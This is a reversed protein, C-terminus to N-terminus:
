PFASFVITSLTKCINRGTVIHVVIVHNKEVGGIDYTQKAISYKFLTHTHSLFNLPTFAGPTHKITLGPNNILKDSCQHHCMHRIMPWSVAQGNSESEEQGQGDTYTEMRLDM